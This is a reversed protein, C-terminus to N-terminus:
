HGVQHQRIDVGGPFPNFAQALQYSLVTGGLAVPDLEVVLILDPVHFNGGTVVSNGDPNGVVAIGDRGVLDGDLLDVEVIRVVVHPRVTDPLKDIGVLKVRVIVLPVEAVDETGIGLQVVM